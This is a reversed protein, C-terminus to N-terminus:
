SIMSLSKNSFYTKSKGLTFGYLNAGMIKLFPIHVIVKFGAGPVSQRILVSLLNMKMFVSSLLNKIFVHIFKM